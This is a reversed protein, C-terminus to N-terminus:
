LLVGKASVFKHEKYREPYLYPLEVAGEIAQIQAALGGVDRYGVEPVEELALDEVDTKPLRELLYGSKPDM